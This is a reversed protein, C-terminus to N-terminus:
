LVRRWDNAGRRRKEARMIAGAVKSPYGNRFPNHKKEWKNGVEPQRATNIGLEPLKDDAMSKESSVVSALSYSCDRVGYELTLDGCWGWRPVQCRWSFGLGRGNVVLPEWLIWALGRQADVKNPMRDTLKEM